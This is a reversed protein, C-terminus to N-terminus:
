HLVIILAKIAQTTCLSESIGGVIGRAKLGTKLCTFLKPLQRRTTGGIDFARACARELAEGASTKRPLTIHCQPHDQGTCVKSKFNPISDAEFIDCTRKQSSCTRRGSYRKSIDCM